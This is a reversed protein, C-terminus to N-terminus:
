SVGSLISNLKDFSVQFDLLRPRNKKSKLKNLNTTIQISGGTSRGKDMVSPVDGIKILFYVYPTRDIDHASYREDKEGILVLFHYDKGKDMWGLPKSWNWRLTPSAKMPQNLKSLKVEIRVGGDTCIDYSEAYSTTTSGALLKAVLTEGKIGKSITPHQKLFDLELRLKNNYLELEDIRARLRSTVKEENTTSEM